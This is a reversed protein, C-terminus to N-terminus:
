ENRFAACLIGTAIAANLSEAGGREHKPIAIRHDLADVVEKSIGRSENGIILLAAKPLDMEFVSEGGLVAGFTPMEPLETKLKSFVIEPSLIRLFAGMSAQVVKPNFVEVSDPSRFVHRIGFWDAIRLITGLNGPDQINDLFLSLGTKAKPFDAGQEPQRLVMFVQNPTNLLSIKKLGAPDTEMIEANLRALAAGNEELWAPLAVITEVLGPQSSLVEHAIKEGEAIFNHYKQRQKRQQLSRLYKLKNNSLM